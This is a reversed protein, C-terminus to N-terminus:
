PKKQIKITQLQGKHMIQLLYLGAQLKEFDIKLTKEQNLKSDMRLLEKGQLDVLRLHVVGTIEESFVLQAVSSVPNEILVASHALQNSNLAITESHAEKSDNDAIRLRYYNLHSNEFAGEDTFSYHLPESSNGKASVKAIDTFILGDASKQVFFAAVNQESATTWSLLADKGYVAGNFKILKAPLPNQTASAGIYFTNNLNAHTLGTREAFPSTNTGGGDAATGPAIGGVLTIRINAPNNVQGINATTILRLGLGTASFGGGTSITLNRNQRVNVLVANTANDNFPTTFSSFGSAEAFSASVLGDTTPNGSITFSILNTASSGFRFLSSTDHAYTRTASFYRSLTGSGSIYGANAFIGGSTSGSSTGLLLVNGNLNLAGTDLILRGGFELNRDLRLGNRNQITFDIISATLSDIVLSGNGGITQLRSGNFIYNPTGSTASMVLRGPSNVSISGALSLTGTFGITLQGTDVILDEIKSGSAGGTLSYSSPSRYIFNGYSRGSLAPGGTTSRFIFNSGSNFIVKTAPATLAFPNAGASQIFTSSSDFTAVSAPGTLGFANGAFTADCSLTSNALFRLSNANIGYLRSRESLNVYGLISAYAGTDVWITLGPTNCAINLSCGQQVEFAPITTSVAKCVLKPYVAYSRAPNITGASSTTISTNSNILTVEGINTYGVYPNVSTFTFLQDYPRMESTFNTGTGTVNQGSRVITGSASPSVASNFILNVSNVVRICAVTQTPINSVVALPTTIGNFVLTDRLNPVNRNPQWNTAVQFDGNSVNWTYTNQASIKHSVISLIIIILNIIKNMKNLYFLVEFNTNKFLVM